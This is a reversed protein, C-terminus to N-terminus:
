GKVDDEDQDDIDSLLEENLLDSQMLLDLLSANQDRHKRIADKLQALQRRLTENERVLEERSREEQLPQQQQLLQQSDGQTIQDM